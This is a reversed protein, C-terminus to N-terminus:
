EVVQERLGRIMDKAMESNGRESMLLAATLQNNYDHRFKTIAERKLELEEFRVLELARLKEKEQLKKELYEKESQNMLIYFLTMDSLVCLFLGLYSGINVAYSLENIKCAMPNLQCTQALPLIILFGIYDVKTKEGICKKWIYIVLILLIFVAVNGFLMYLMMIPSNFTMDYPEGIVIVLVNTLLQSICVMVIFMGYALFKQWIKGKYMLILFVFPIATNLNNVCQYITSEMDNSYIARIYAPVVMLLTLIIPFASKTIRKIRSDFLSSFYVALLYASLLWVAFIFWIYM